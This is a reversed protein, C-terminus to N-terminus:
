FVIRLRGRSIEIRAFRELYGMGLLSAHLEGENVLAQVNRADHGELSVNSLRVMATRTVGNATQAVGLFRLRSLDFGLKQADERRLVMETAGTDVIFQIPTPQGNPGEINLTIHYQGDFRRRLEVGESTASQSAIVSGQFTDWVGYGASLALILLGWLLLHRLMTALRNQHAVVAYSILAGGLVVLYVLHEIQGAALSEFNPM